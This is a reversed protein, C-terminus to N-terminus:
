RGLRGVKFRFEDSEETQILCESALECWQRRIQEPLLKAFENDDPAVADALAIARKAIRRLALLEEAQISVITMNIGPRNRDWRWTVPLSDVWTADTVGSNPTSRNEPPARGPTAAPLSLNGQGPRLSAVEIERASNGVM